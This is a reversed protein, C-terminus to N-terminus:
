FFMRSRANVFRKRDLDSWWSTQAPPYLFDTGNQFWSVSIYINWATTSSKICYHCKFITVMEEDDSDDHDVETPAGLNRQKAQIVFPINTWHANLFLFWVSHLWISMINFIFIPIYLILIRYLLPELACALSLPLLVASRCCTVHMIVFHM